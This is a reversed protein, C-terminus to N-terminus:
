REHSSEKRSDHKLPYCEKNCKAIYVVPRDIRKKTSFIKDSWKEMSYSKQLLSPPKRNQNKGKAEVAFRFGSVTCSRGPPEGRSSVARKKPPPLNHRDM